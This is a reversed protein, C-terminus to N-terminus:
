ASIAEIFPVVQDEELESVKGAGLEKLAARVKNAEGNSVLATAMDVADKKTYEADGEDGTEEEVPEPAEPEEKKPAAAKKAPTPNSKATPAPASDVGALLALAKRDSETLEDTNFSIFM